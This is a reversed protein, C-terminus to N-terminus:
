KSKKTKTTKPKEPATKKSLSKELASVRAELKQQEERAAILMTELREFDERPVLDMKQAMDDIRARLDGKLQTRLGHLASVTGGALRAIDDLVKEKELM